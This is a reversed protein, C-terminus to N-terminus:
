GHSLDKASASSACEQAGPNINSKRGPHSVVIGAGAQVLLRARQGSKHELTVTSDGITFSEGTRIEVHIRTRASM